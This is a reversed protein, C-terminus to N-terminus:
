CADDAVNSCVLCLKIKRGFRIIITKGFHLVMVTGPQAEELCKDIRCLLVSYFLTFTVVHLHLSGSFVICMLNGLCHQVLYIHVFIHMDDFQNLYM